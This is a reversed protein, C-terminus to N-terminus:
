AVNSYVCISFSGFLHAPVTAISAGAARVGAGAAADQHVADIESGRLVGDALAPLL